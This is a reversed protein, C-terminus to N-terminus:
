ELRSKSLCWVSEATKWGCYMTASRVNQSKTNSTPQNKGGDSFAEM